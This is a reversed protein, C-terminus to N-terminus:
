CKSRGLSVGLLFSAASVASVAAWPTEHVYKDASAAVTQATQTATESLDALNEKIEQFRLTLKEKACSLDNNNMSTSANFLDEIDLLFDHFEQSIDTQM